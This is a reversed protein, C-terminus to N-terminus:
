NTAKLAAYIGDAIDALVERDVQDGLEGWLIKLVRRAPTKLDGCVPCDEDEGPGMAMYTGGARLGDVNWCRGCYECQKVM